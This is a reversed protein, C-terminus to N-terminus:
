PHAGPVWCLQPECFIDGPGLFSHGLSRSARACVFPFEQYHCRQWGGPFAPQGPPGPYPRGQLPRPARLVPPLTSQAGVTHPHSASPQEGGPRERGGVSLERREPYLARPNFVGLPRLYHQSCAWCHVQPHQTPFSPWQLSVKKPPLSPNRSDEWCQM